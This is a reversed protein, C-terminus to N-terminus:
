PTALSELIERARTVGILHGVGPYLQVTANPIRRALEDAWAAPVLRDETGQHIAVPVEVDEPRFRWPAGYSRYDDVQGAADHTGDAMARAFWERHSDLVGHEDGELDKASMSVLRKPARTALLNTVRIYAKAAFPAKETWRLLRRDISSLQARNAPEDVPLCGAVVAVRDVRDGLVHAAALAHQGGASWGM